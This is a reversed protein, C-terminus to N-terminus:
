AWMVSGLLGLPELYPRAADLLAQAKTRAAGSAYTRSWSGVSQSVVEGGEENGQWAEAVACTAKKVGEQGAQGAARGGTAYDLWESARASLRPFDGEAIRGGLYTGSYYAYDAYAM